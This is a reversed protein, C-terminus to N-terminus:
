LSEAHSHNYKLCTLVSDGYVTPAMRVCVPSQQEYELVLDAEVPQLASLLSDQLAMKVHIYPNIECVFIRTYVSEGSEPSHDFTVRAIFVLGKKVSANGNSQKTLLFIQGPSSALVGKAKTQLLRMRRKFM